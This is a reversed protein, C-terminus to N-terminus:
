PKAKVAPKSKTPFQILYSCESDGKLVHAYRHVEAQLMQALFCLEGQCAQPYQRAIQAIACNHETVLFTRANVKRSEAMYGEECLIAVAENVRAKRSKGAMRGAFRAVMHDKRKEFLRSVKEEGDLCAVSHILEMSFRDYTKPFLTDGLDTLLCLAAPRGKPRREMEMRVLGSGQLGLVHRRVAMPTIGLARSIDAIAARGKIKIFCLIKNRTSNERVEAPM